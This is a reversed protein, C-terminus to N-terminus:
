LSAAGAKWLNLYDEEESFYNVFVWYRGYKEMLDKKEDTPRPTLEEV